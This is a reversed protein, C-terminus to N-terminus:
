TSTKREPQKRKTTSLGATWGLGAAFAQRVHLPETLWLAVLTGLVVFILFQAIYRSRETGPCRDIVDSLSYARRQSDGEKCWLLITGAATAAVIWGVGQFM